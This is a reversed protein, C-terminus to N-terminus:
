KKLLPSLPKYIVLTVVSCILGKLLNFPVVAFLILTKLDTISENVATGMSIITDLPLNYIVSFAPVLVFYNMLSGAAALSVTGSAMGVVAGSFKRRYKYILSAPLVLSLGTVLNAIEGVFATDTGTLILNLLIKVVETLVGAMPGLAFGAVLVAIESLDLEYFSPAFPLPFELLMLLAAAAGLIAIKTVYSIRKKSYSM